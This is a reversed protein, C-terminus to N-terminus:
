PGHMDSKFESPTVKQPFSIVHACLELDAVTRVADRTERNVGLDSSWFHPGTFLSDPWLQTSGGKGQHYIGKPQPEFVTLYLLLHVIPKKSGTGFVLIGM